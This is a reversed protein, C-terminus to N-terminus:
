SQENLYKVTAMSKASYIFMNQRNSKKEQEEDTTKKKYLNLSKFFGPLVRFLFQFLLIICPGGDCLRHSDLLM